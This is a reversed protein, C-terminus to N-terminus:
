SHKETVQRTWASDLDLIEVSELFEQPPQYYHVDIYHIILSPAAYIIGNWSPIWIESMGLVRQVGSTGVYSQSACCITCPQIGRIHKVDQGNIMVQRLKAKVSYLVVGKAYDHLHDLWGVNFVKMLKSHDSYPTLDPYYM